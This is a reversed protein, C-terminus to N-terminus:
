RSGYFDYSASYAVRTETGARDADCGAAPAVGGVTDVRLVYNANALAGAGDHSKVRLLLWPIAGQAPSRQVMEGVIRSGDALQWSPGASHRGIIAGGADFLDAEPAKLKWDFTTRDAVPECTYIQAGRAVARLLFQQDAPVRLNEPVSTTAPRPASACCALLAVLIAVATTTGNAFTTKM